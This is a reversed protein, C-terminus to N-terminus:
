PIRSYSPLISNSCGVFASFTATLGGRSNLGTVPWDGYVYVEGFSNQFDTSTPNTITVLMGELSEWFDMGFKTPQLVPNVSDQLSQNNPISLYGDMGTDLSSLYETPPHLGYKGVIIPKVTQNAALVTINTPSELETVTLYDPSSSPKYEVVKGSLIVLDGM